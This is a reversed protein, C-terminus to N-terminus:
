AATRRAPLRSRARARKGAPARLDAFAQKIQHGFSPSSALTSAMLNLVDVVIVAALAHLDFRLQSLEIEIYDSRKGLNRHIEPLGAVMFVLPEFGVM